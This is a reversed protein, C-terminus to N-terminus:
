NPACHEYQVWDLGVGGLLANVCFAPVIRLTSVMGQRSGILYGSALLAAAWGMERRRECAATLTDAVCFRWSLAAVSPFPQLGDNSGDSAAACVGVTVYRSGPPGPGKGHGHPQPDFVREEGFRSPGNTPAHPKSIQQQGLSQSSPMLESFVM